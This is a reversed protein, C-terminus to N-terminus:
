NDRYVFHNWISLLSLLYYLCGLFSYLIFLLFFRQNELGVANNTFICYHSFQFVLSESVSCYHTRAPKLQGSKECKRTWIGKLNEMTKTRYKM